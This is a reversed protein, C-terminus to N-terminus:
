HILLMILLLLPGGIVFLALLRVFIKYLLSPEDWYEANFIEHCFPCMSSVFISQDRYIRPIIYRGCGPCKIKSVPSSGTAKDGSREADYRFEKISKKWGKKPERPDLVYKVYRGVEPEGKEKFAKIHFYYDNHEDDRVFGFGRQPDYKVIYGSLMGDDPKAEAVTNATDILGTFLGTNQENTGM